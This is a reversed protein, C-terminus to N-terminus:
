GTQYTAKDQQTAEVNRKQLKKTAGIDAMFKWCEQLYRIQLHHFLLTQFKNAPTVSLCFIIICLCYLSENM